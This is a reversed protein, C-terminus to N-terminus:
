GLGTRLLCLLQMHQVSISWHRQLNRVSPHVHRLMPALVIRLQLTLEFLLQLSLDNLNRISMMDERNMSHFSGNTPNQGSIFFSKSQCAKNSNNLMKQSWNRVSVTLCKIYIIDDKRKKATAFVQSIRFKPGKDHLTLGSVFRFFHLHQWKIEWYPQFVHM